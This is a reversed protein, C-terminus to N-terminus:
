AAAHVHNGGQRSRTIAAAHATMKLMPRRVHRRLHIHQRRLQLTLNQRRIFRARQRANPQPRIPAAPMIRITGFNAPLKLQSRLIAKLLTLPM